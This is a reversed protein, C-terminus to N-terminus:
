PTILTVTPFYTRFRNVDRTLLSYGTVEAHGGIFFDPLPKTRSGARKRYALFAKAASYLGARPILELTFGGTAILQDLDAQTAFPYALEAYIISNIALGQPQYQNLKALSWGYWNPDKTAVDVIVNTDVLVTM